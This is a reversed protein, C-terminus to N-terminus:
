PTRAVLDNGWNVLLLAEAASISKGSAQQVMYVFTQLKQKTSSGKMASQLQAVLSVQEASTILGRSAGDNVANILGSITAHITFTITKTSTNGLGDIATVVITHTGSTVTDIDIVGGVIATKGDLVVTTTANDVDTAGYTLTIKKGVDYYAGNTPAPLSATIVPPTRDLRITAKFVASNGAVDLVAVAVTYVGDAGPLALAIPGASYSYTSGYTAGGNTSFAMALLGVNDTFGLVLTMTPNATALQGSIVPGGGNITFTGAPPQTDKLAAASKGTSGPNGAPDTLYGNLTVNGDKLGALNMGITVTGNSGVLGSGTVTNAGDTVSVTATAGAEGNIAIPVAAKNAMNVYTPLSVVPPLPPTIDKVLTVSSSTINGAGDMTTATATLSGQALNLLNLTLSLTGTVPDLMGGADETYTGDSLDLEVFMGPPGSLNFTVTHQNAINVYAPASLNAAGPPATSKVLTVTVGGSVSATLTTNALASLNLALMLQGFPDVVGSGTVTTTGDSITLTILSGAAGNLVVPVSTQNSNTVSTPAAVALGVPPAPPDTGPSQIPGNAATYHVDRAVGGLNGPMPNFPAGLQQHWAADSQLVLGLEGFPEGNRTPDGGFGPRVGLTLDSGDSQSLQYLFVPLGPQLARSVTPEGYPAFPVVYTNHNGVWDILRDGGTGAFLIDQGAGGFVLAEWAPTGVTGAPQQMTDTVPMDNLGLDVTLSARLDVIDNGWGGYVRSRGMATIIWDNGFDGFIADDGTTKEPNYTTGFTWKNSVPITPETPDFSLIWNVCNGGPLAPPTWKCLAGSTKDIMIERRRDNPDFLAFKMTTPSFGLVNGPNFPHYWDSEVPSGIQNGNMDYNNTYATIPAEAGSIADSGFTAHISDDGWGGYVIDNEQVTRFQPGPPANAAPPFPYILATYKLALTVNILAQQHNGPTAIMAQATPTTIGYLPETMTDRSAYCQGDGAIICTEGHGGSVWDNGYGTLITDNQGGGFIVGKNPGGYIWADGQEAHVEFPGGIDGVGNSAAAGTVLPGPQGALDPGGPTYDLRRVARPVIHATTTYNDYNFKLYGGTGVLRFIDGNNALMVDANTDHADPLLNCQHTLPDATGAGCDERGIHDGIGGFIM